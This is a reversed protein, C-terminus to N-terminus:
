KIVTFKKAQMEGDVNIVLYYTGAALQATSVTYTDNTVNRHTDQMVASGVSNLVAYQVETAQEDLKLSVNMVDSVPNPYISIDLGKANALEEVGVKFLSLSVASLVDYLHM